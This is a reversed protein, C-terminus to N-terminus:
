APRPFIASLGDWDPEGLEFPFLGDIRILVLGHIYSWAACAANIDFGHSLPTEDAIAEALMMFSKRAWSTSTEPLELISQSNMLRYLSPHAVAFSMYAKGMASVKAPGRGGTRELEVCLIRFGEDALAGLFARRDRFHRYPATKSVGASEALSRLSLAAEGDSELAIRGLRLLESRLNGHHYSDEKM